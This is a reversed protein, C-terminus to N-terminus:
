TKFESLLNETEALLNEQKLKKLFILKNNPKVKAQKPNKNVFNLVMDSVDFNDNFKMVFGNQGSDLSEIKLDLCTQKIKVMNLLNKFEDPLAGFRDVM